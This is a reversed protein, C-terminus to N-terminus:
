GQEDVDEGGATVSSIIGESADSGDVDRYTQFRFPDDILGGDALTEDDEVDNGLVGFVEVTELDGEEGGRVADRM